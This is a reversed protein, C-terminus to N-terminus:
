RKEEYYIVRRLGLAQLVKAGINRRGNIIDNLYQPSIGLNIATRKQNSNRIMQKLKEILEIETM